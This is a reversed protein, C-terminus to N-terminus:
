SIAGMAQLQTRKLNSLKTGSAKKTKPGYELEDDYMLGEFKLIFIANYMNMDGADYKLM